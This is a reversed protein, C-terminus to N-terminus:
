KNFVTVKKLPIFKPKSLFLQNDEIGLLREAQTRIKTILPHEQLLAASPYPSTDGEKCPFTLTGHKKLSNKLILFGPNLEPTTM